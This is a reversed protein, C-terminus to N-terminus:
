VCHAAPGRSVPQALVTVRVRVCAQIVAASEASIISASAASSSTSSAKSQQRHRMYRFGLLGAAASVLVAAGSSSMCIASARFLRLWFPNRSGSTNQAVNVAFPPCPPPRPPPPPPPLPRPLPPILPQPPHRLRSLPTATMTEYWRMGGDGVEAVWGECVGKLYLAGM